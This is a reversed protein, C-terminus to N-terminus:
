RRYILSKGGASTKAFSLYRAQQVFLDTALEADALDGHLSVAAPHHALHLGVREGVQHVHGRAEAECRRRTSLLRGGSM